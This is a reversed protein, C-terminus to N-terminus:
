ARTPRAHHDRPAGAEAVQGLFGGLPEVARHEFARHLRVAVGEAHALLQVREVEPELADGLVVGLERRQELARALELVVELELVLVRELGLRAPHKGAEAERAGVLVPRQGLERSAPAHAGRERRQQEGVRREQEEVLRGVM